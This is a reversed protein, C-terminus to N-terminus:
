FEVNQLMQLFYKFVQIRNQQSINSNAENTLNHNIDPQIENIKISGDNAMNQQDYVNKFDYTSVDITVRM